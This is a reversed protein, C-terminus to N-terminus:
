RAELWWSPWQMLDVGRLWAMGVGLLLSFLAAVVLLLLALWEGGSLPRRESPLVVPQRPNEAPQAVLEADYRRRLEPDSLVSYARQLDKFASEAQPLPLTTTDPHYRKSLQRFAQRLAEASANVPLGLLQYHSPASM